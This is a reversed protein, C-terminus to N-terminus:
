SPALLVTDDAYAFLNIATGFYYCSINILM